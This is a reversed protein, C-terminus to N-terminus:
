RSEVSWNLARTFEFDFEVPSRSSFSSNGIVPIPREVADRTAELITLSYLFSRKTNWLLAADVSTEVLGIETRLVGSPDYGATTPNALRPPERVCDWASM